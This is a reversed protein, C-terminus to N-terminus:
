ESTQIGPLTVLVARCSLCQGCRELKTALTFCERQALEIVLEKYSDFLYFDSYNRELQYHIVRGVHAADQSLKKFREVEALFRDTNPVEKM